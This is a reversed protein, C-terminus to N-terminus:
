LFRQPRTIIRTATKRAEPVVVVERPDPVIISHRISVKVPAKVKPLARPQKPMTSTAKKAKTGMHNQQEKLAKKAAAAQEKAEKERAAKAKKKATEKAKKEKELKNRLTNMAERAKVVQGPSYYNITGKNPESKVKDKTPEKEYTLQFQYLAKSTKPIRLEQKKKPSTLSPHTITKIIESRNTPEELTSDLLDNLKISYYTLLPQFLSSHRDIILLRKTTIRAPKTYRKFIKLHGSEGKYLALYSIFERSGDQKLKTIGKENFNYINEATIKYKRRSITSRTYGFAKAAQSYDSFEGRRITNVAKTVRASKDIRAM